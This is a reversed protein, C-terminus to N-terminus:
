MASSGGKGVWGGRLRLSDTVCERAASSSGVVAVIVKCETQKQAAAHIALVEHLADADAADPSLLLHLIGMKMSSSCAGMKMSFSRAGDESRPGKSDSAFEDSSFSFRAM